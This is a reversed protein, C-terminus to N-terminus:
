VEEWCGCATLAPALLMAATTLMPPVSQQFVLAPTACTSWLGGLEWLSSCLSYPFLFFMVAGHVGPQKLYEPLELM